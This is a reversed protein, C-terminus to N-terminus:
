SRLLSDAPASLHVQADVDDNQQVQHRRDTEDLCQFPQRVRGRRAGAVREAHDAHRNGRHGRDSQDDLQAGLDRTDAHAPHHQAQQDAAGGARQHGLADLHGLHRFQDREHVAHDAQGRHEDRDGAHGLGPREVDDGLAASGWRCGISSNMPVKTPAIVNEPDTIAKPL